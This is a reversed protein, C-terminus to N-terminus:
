VRTARAASAPHIKEAKLWPGLVMHARYQKCTQMLELHQLLAAKRHWFLGDPRHGAVHRGRSHGARAVGHKEDRDILGHACTATAAELAGGLWCLSQQFDTAGVHHQCVDEVQFQVNSAM